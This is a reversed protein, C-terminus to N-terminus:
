WWWRLLRWRCQPTNRLVLRLHPHGIGDDTPLEMLIDDNGDDVGDASGSGVPHGAVPPLGPEGTVAGTLPEFRGPLTGCTGQGMNSEPLRANSALHGQLEAVERTISSMNSVTTPWRAPILVKKLM